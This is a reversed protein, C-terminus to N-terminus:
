RGYRPPESRTYLRHVTKEIRAAEGTYLQTIYDGVEESTLWEDLVEHRRARTKIPHYAMLSHIRINTAHAEQKLVRSMMLQAAAVISVVGEEPAILEAAGGNVMVYVGSNREHMISLLARMCLFHTTLNNQIVGQWHEFPMRHLSYGYYWGGLCAVGLDVRGFRELLESRFRATQDEDSVSGQICTLTGCDVDGVYDELRERGAETRYPVVVTAGQRLFARVLGEGVSGTGGAVVVVTDLLKNM